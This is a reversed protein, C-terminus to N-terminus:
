RPHAHPPAHQHLPVEVKAPSIVRTTRVGAAAVVFLFLLLAAGSLVAAVALGSIGSKRARTGCRPCFRAPAPVASSCRSCTRAM